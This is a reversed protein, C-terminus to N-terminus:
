FTNKQLIDVKQLAVTWFLTVKNKLMYQKYMKKSPYTTMAILGIISKSKFIQTQLESIDTLNIEGIFINKKRGVSFPKRHTKPSKLKKIQPLQTFTAKKCCSHPSVKHGDSDECRM